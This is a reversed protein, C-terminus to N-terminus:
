KQFSAGQLQKLIKKGRRAESEFRVLSNYSWGGTGKGAVAAKGGEQRVTPTFLLFTQVQKDRGVEKKKNKSAVSCRVEEELFFFFLASVHDARRKGEADRDLLRDNTSADAREAALLFLM